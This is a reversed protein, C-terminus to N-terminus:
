RLRLKRGTEQLVSDFRRWSIKYGVKGNRPMWVVAGKSVKLRGFRTGNKWVRFILDSKGLSREPVMFKVDHQAM